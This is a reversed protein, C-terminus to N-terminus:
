AMNEKFRPEDGDWDDLMLELLAVAQNRVRYQQHGYVTVSQMTPEHLLTIWCPNPGNTWAGRKPKDEVLTLRIDNPDLKM